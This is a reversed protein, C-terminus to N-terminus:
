KFNSILVADRNVTGRSLVLQKGDRSWGFAFIRDSKFDTIQKPQGGDIPQSWINSIGGSGVVFHLARGDPSWRPLGQSSGQNYLKTIDFENIPQGGEFPIVAAKFAPDPDRRFIYAIMKGDPSVVPALSFESTLQVAEGGEISVRWVTTKNSASSQYVVWKGDPSIQPATNVGKGTTLRKPNGGDIDLRWIHQEEVDSTGSIRWSEFVIYRNDPSVAVYRNNHEDVTLMKQNSGDADAISINYDQSAYVIKNDPTWAVGLIGEFKGSTIQKARNADGDPAIWLNSSTESQVTLLTNSDSTLSVGAYNGLDNTIRRAEGSMRSVEWIQFFWGTSRDAASMVFGNGDRLWAIQGIAGWNHSTVIKETGDEVTVEILEGGGTSFYIGCVITKGDPSWAAGDTSHEEPEKRTALKREGSGDANAIVLSTEGRVKNERVFAFQKGDPSFTVPSQVDDWVKRAAGGLVPTQYLTLATNDEERKVYFIYNGDISFTLGYYRVKAPAVIQVNSQTATQRMWLSQQGADDVVHVVYRGDSSIAALTVKGSNTLRALRMASDSAVPANQKATFKYIGYGIGALALVFIAFMIVAGRKHRKIEGTLYEASLTRRVADKTSVINSATQASNEGTFTQTPANENTAVVRAGSIQPATSREIETHLDLERRLAKLDIMLDRATQYREDREKTLAKRAIRQLETPVGPVYQALLPPERTLIAAIVDNMTEGAFPLYGTLMEYLVVGLSWIDTRADTEKGRAQEPSMYSVTGMVVGPNTKVLARTEAEADLNAERKEALKALGFDLVKVIQDRRLMINEPKIDRHVIGAAHAASLAFAVQQAIDLSEYLNVSEGNLKERLTEGEVFETALFHHQNEAGLEYVTLINPHNLSSAAYAEQEFRRLRDKDSAISEPLIKLAVKRNLRTDEALFVEGMGGAGLLSLIEYRGLKTGAEIM